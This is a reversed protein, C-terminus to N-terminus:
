RSKNHHGEPPSKRSIGSYATEAHDLPHRILLFTVVSLGADPWGLMLSTQM